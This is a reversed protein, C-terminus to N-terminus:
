ILLTHGGEPTNAASIRPLTLSIQQSICSYPSSKKPYTQMQGMFRLAPASVPDGAAVVHKKKNQWAPPNAGEARCVAQPQKDTIPPCHAQPAVCPQRSAPDGAAVVYKKNQWAPPNAGEARCVAQPQKDTIPPCHAQPAVCPQRSVLAGM